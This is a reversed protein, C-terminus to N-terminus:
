RHAVEVRYAVLIPPTNDQVMNNSLAYKQLEAPSKALLLEESLRYNEEALMQLERQLRVKTYNAATIRAHGAIRIFILFACLGGIVLYALGSPVGLSSAKAHRSEGTTTPSVRANNPYYVRAANSQVAM